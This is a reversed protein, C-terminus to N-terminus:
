SSKRVSLSYHGAPDLLAEAPNAGTALDDCFLKVALCDGDNAAELFARFRDVGLRELGRRNSEITATM